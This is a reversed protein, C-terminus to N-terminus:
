AGFEGGLARILAIDLSFARTELVVLERRTAILTGEAFLVDLYTALGGRYRNDAIQWAAQAAANAERTHRLHADLAPRSTAADAVERLAQAVAADYASVAVDYEAEAARCGARLRGGEFIPLSNAAGASGFLADGEAFSSLSLSQLGIFGALNINPYFRKEAVSIRSSAAEARARAAVIEPRRGMLQAPIADPLAMASTLLASPRVIMLGRDPGEGLLAALVNRSLGIAENITALNAQATAQGYVARHVEGENELGQQQRGRMLQATREQVAVAENAADRDFYLAALTAYQAAIASSLALRAAAQEARAADADSSAAALAARSNDNWGRPAPFGSNYSQRDAHASAGASLSPLLDSKSASVLARAKRTRAEAARMDPANALAEEILQNLQADGYDRWWSDSPWAAGTGPLSIQAEFASDAKPPGGIEPAPVAACGTLAFVCTSILLSLRPRLGARCEAFLPCM